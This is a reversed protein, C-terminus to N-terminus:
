TATSSTATIIITASTTTTPASCTTNNHLYQRKILKFDVVVLTTLKLKVCPVTGLFHSILGKLLKCVSPLNDNTYCFNESIIESFKMKMGKAIVNTTITVATTYSNLKICNAM